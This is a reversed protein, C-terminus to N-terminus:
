SLEKIMLVIKKLSMDSPETSSDKSSGNIVMHGGPHFYWRDESEQGIIKDYLPRLDIGEIPAAKIKLYQTRPDKRVVVDYGSKQAIKMVADNGSEIAIGPGWKSTFEEGEEIEKKSHALEQLYQYAADLYVFGFEMVQSNSYKSLGHMAPIISSLMFSYRPHVAEPWHYEGFQDIDTVYDVLMQLANDSALHEQKNVLYEHVLYSASLHTRKIDHHDFKGMGTDVHVVDPDSDVPLDRYTSGAAVFGFGADSYMDPLFRILLWAASISDLDPHIHAVIMKKTKM